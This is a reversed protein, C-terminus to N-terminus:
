RKSCDPASVEITAVANSKLGTRLAGELSWRYRDITALLFSGAAATFVSYNFPAKIGLAITITVAFLTLLAGSAIASTRTFLGLILTIGLVIELITAVWALISILSHPAFWNLKETYKVFHEWDGWGVNPQSFSGWMGFRDAVASLFAMGLALRLFLSSLDKTIGPKM